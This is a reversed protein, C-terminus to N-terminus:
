ARPVKFAYWQFFMMQLKSVFVTDNENYCFIRQLDESNQILRFPRKKNLYITEPKKDKWNQVIVNRSSDYFIEIKKNKYLLKM